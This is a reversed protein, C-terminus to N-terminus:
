YTAIHWLITDGKKISYSGAGVQAESGNVDFQWFEHKKTDAVRGNVSTVFANVGAGSTIVKTNAQTAELATKGVYNSIDFDVTKSDINVSLTTKLEQVTEKKTSSSGVKRGVFVLISVTGLIVLLLILLKKFNKM